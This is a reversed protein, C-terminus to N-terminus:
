PKSDNDALNLRVSEAYHVYDAGRFHRPTEMVLERATQLEDEVDSPFSGNDSGNDTQFSGDDDSVDGDDYDGTPVRALHAPELLTPAVAPVIRAPVTPIDDPSGLSLENAVAFSTQETSPPNQTMKTHTDPANAEAAEEPEDFAQLADM